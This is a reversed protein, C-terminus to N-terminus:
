VIKAINMQAIRREALRRKLRRKFRAWLAPDPSRFPTGAPATLDKVRCRLARASKRIASMHVLGSGGNEWRSVLQRPIGIAAALESQTLGRDRRIVALRRGFNASALRM